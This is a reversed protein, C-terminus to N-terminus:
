RGGCGNRCPLLAPSGGICSNAIMWLTTSVITSRVTAGPHRGDVEHDPLDPSSSVAKPDAVRGRLLLHKGVELMPRSNSATLASSPM